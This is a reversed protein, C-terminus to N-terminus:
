CSHLFIDMFIGLGHDIIVTLGVSFLDQVVVKGRNSAPVPVGRARFDIGLHPRKVNNYLRFVM